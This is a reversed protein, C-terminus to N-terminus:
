SEVHFVPISGMLRKHLETCPEDLWYDDGKRKWHLDREVYKMIIPFRVRNSPNLDIWYRYPSFSDSPKSLFTGNKGIYEMIDDISAYVTPYGDTQETKPNKLFVKLDNGFSIMNGVPVDPKYHFRTESDLMNFTIIATNTM